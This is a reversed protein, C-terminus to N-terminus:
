YAVQFRTFFAKEDDRDAGKAAGGDFRTVTYNLVWELNQTLYWNVGASIASAKRPQKGPDAFWANSGTGASNTFTAQDLNLVSYRLAAEVAGWGPKGIAFPRKPVITKYGSEDDTLLATALVQWSDHKLRATRQFATAGTGFNRAVDQSVRVYESLLGYRSFYYYAQPSWRLREGNAYTADAAPAAGAAARTGDYGFFNRQTETRYTPLLTNASNGTQRVFSAAIGVGLGRLAFNDSNVFPQSFLRLAVDKDDNNDVDPAVNSDTSVGDNVGNFYGVQYTVAGDLLAGSIQVGLDRNPVLDSPLGLEILRNDPSSQLRELGFPEKFKGATVVFYPRFRAAVFADQIVTKGGGFDPTFRFDFINSLTGEVIPRVRRFVWTSRSGNPTSKDDFFRGDFDFEGRFRISNAGDMSTLSFGKPSAKVVPTEAATAVTAEQQNELKRELIKIRQELEEITPPTDARARAGILILRLALAFWFYERTEESIKKFAM